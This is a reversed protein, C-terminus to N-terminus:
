DKEGKGIGKADGMGERKRRKTVGKEKISCWDEEKEKKKKENYQNNGM